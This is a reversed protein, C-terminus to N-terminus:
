LVGSNYAPDFTNLTIWDDGISNTVHVTASTVNFFPRTFTAVLIEGLFTSGNTFTLHSSTETSAYAAGATGASFTLHGTAGTGVLTSSTVNTPAVTGTFYDTGVTGNQNIAKALSTLTADSSAGIKVDNAQTMTTKLRYTVNNVTVTDGDVPVTGDSSLTATPSTVMHDTNNRPQGGRVVTDVVAIHSPQGPGGFGRQGAIIRCKVVRFNDVFSTGGGGTSLFLAGGDAQQTTMSSGSPNSIPWNGIDLGFFGVGSGGQTQVGDQHAGPGRPGNRIVGTVNINNCGAIKLSDQQNGYTRGDGDLDLILHINDPNSTDGTASTRLGVACGGTYLTGASIPVGTSWNYSGQTWKITLNVPWLGPNEVTVGTRTPSDTWTNIASGLFSHLFGTADEVTVDQYTIKMGGTVAAASWDFRTCRLYGGRKRCFSIPTSIATGDYDTYDSYRKLDYMGGGLCQGARQMRVGSHVSVPM